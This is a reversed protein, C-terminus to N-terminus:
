RRAAEGPMGNPLSRWPGGPDLGCFGAGFHMNVENSWVEIGAVGFALLSGVRPGWVGHVYRDVLYDVGVLLGDVVGLYGWVAGESPDPGLIPNRERWKSERLFQGTEGADCASSAVATAELGYQVRVWTTRDGLDFTGACGCLAIAAVTLIM